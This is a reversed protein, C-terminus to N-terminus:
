RRRRAIFGACGLLALSGPTPVVTFVSTGSAVDFASVGFTWAASIDTLAGVIPSFGTDDSDTVTSFIGANLSNGLLNAFVSGPAGNYRAAYISAGDPSLTAGDGLTDTLTVAASARGSATPLIASALGSSIGFITNAAGAAVNFNLSVTQGGARNANEIVITASQLMGIGNIDVNETSFSWTGENWTGQDWNIAFSGSGADNTANVRFAELDGRGNLFPFAETMDAMATSSAAAILSAILIKNM